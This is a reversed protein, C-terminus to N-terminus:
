LFIFYFGFIVLFIAAVIGLNIFTERLIVKWTYGFEEIIFKCIVYYAAFIFLLMCIIFVGSLYSQIDM